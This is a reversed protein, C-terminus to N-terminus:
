VSACYCRASRAADWWERCAPALVYAVVFATRLGRDVGPDSSGVGDLFEEIRAVAAPEDGAVIDVTAGARRRRGALVAACGRRLASAALAYAAGRGRGRGAAVIAAVISGAWLLDIPTARGADPLPCCPPVDNPRGVLWAAGPRILDHGPYGAGVGRRL